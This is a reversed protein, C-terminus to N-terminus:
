RHKQISPGDAERTRERPPQYDSRPDQDAPPQVSRVKNQCGRDKAPNNLIEADSILM